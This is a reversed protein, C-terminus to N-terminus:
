IIANRSAFYNFTFFADMKLLNVYIYLLRKKIADTYKDHVDITYGLLVIIQM